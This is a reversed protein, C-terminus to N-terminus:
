YNYGISFYFETDGWSLPNGPLDKVFLFSKGVSFDAPGIPTDFSLSLGIGHQLDKFRIAERGPWVSGLDYRAKFYTDFFIKFPLLYRYELSALFIQTGRFQNDRMGFFSSQGGLSYWESLPMTKDGLGITFRPSITYANAITFYSKYNFDINTFGVDGGWFTQASQYEGKFYMGKLPYPYRDQTDITSSLKLSVIKTTYPSFISNRLDKLQDIQYLGEIILNGFKKVQTGVSVSGGYFIQRYEGNQFYSFSHISTSAAKEYTYVDNFRYFANIKYTLYTDFIRNSKHEIEYARNRGGVLMLLGLETGSGFLNEDVLDLSLQANYENDDRFGLRLLSSEKEQVQIDLVNKGNEDEESLFVENFLNTSRLNTLGQKIENYNFYGGVNVPIERTIISPNTNRNGIISIKDIRGEDFLIKLEGTEKNFSIKTIEALSYGKKRYLDVANIADSCIVKADYPQKLLNNFCSLFSSKKILTVGIASVKNVVPNYVPIFKVTSYDPYEKVEAKIDELSGRSYISCLDKLIEFNSVSDQTAYKQLFPMELASANANVLVNKIYFQKTDLNKQFVSDLQLKIVGIKPIVSKYGKIILSDPDSFDDLQVNGLKPAIVANAYKLQDENLRLMPISVVQDAVDWPLSLEGEPHLDSTTNVAIIYDGGLKASIKVPINAVLGGDVLTLSDMKVPALFFSVSSSARLAESLSGSGLIVPQGTVLNTCVARFETRLEDFSSDVHIPAQFTLLNLFSSIKQGSNLSTPLVLSFGKLRLGIIAKDESIKQDVFLDRRNTERDPALLNTWDTNTVISDLQDLSYGASYLGGIVSGMSTGAIIDIPINFDKLARLVGLQALGRAGGGSLALAIRPLPKPVRETLGFPLKKIRTKFSLIHTSTQAFSSCTLLFFIGIIIKKIVAMPMGDRRTFRNEDKADRSSFRLM